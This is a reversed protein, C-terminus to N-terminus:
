LLYGIAIFFYSYFYKRKLNLYMLGSLVSFVMTSIGNWIEFGAGRSVFHFAGWTIALIIGGFPISSKRKLLTEIAKQAYIIILLVLGVEFVYYLYQTGFEFVNKGQFEGIVKLTHWDIFTIIKCVILCIFTVIWEKLTIKDTKNTKTPFDYYKHTYILIAAIVIAWLCAMIVCHMSRQYPTYNSIDAHMLPVEIVFISFFELMFSAFSFLSMLLYKTWKIQNDMIM